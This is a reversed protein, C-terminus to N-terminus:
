ENKTQWAIAWFGKIRSRSSGDLRFKGERLKNSQSRIGAGDIERAPFFDYLSEWDRNSADRNGPTPENRAGEAGLKVPGM